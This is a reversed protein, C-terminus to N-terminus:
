SLLHKRQAGVSRSPLDRSQTLMGIAIFAQMEVDIISQNM